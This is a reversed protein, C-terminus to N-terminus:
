PLSSILSALIPPIQTTNEPEQYAQAAIERVRKMQFRSLSDAVSNSFGRIHKLTFTFNSEAAMAVMCRLLELAASSKSNM